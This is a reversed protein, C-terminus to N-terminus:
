GSGHQARRIGVEAEQATTHRGALQQELLRAKAYVAERTITGGVLTRDASAAGAARGHLVRWNNMVLFRGKKMELRRQFRPSHALEVYRHFAAYWQPLVDYPLTLPMRFVENYQVRVLAGTRDTQLLRPQTSVLGSRTLTQAADVRSALLDREADWGYECLLRFGEPDEARLAEAVAFGDALTNAGSGQAYHMCLVLGVAGHPPQSQDTHLNLEKLHDYSISTAGAKKTIKWNPEDRSPDKQLGGLVEDTFAHLAPVGPTPCGDVVVAGIRLLDKLAALQVEPKSMIEEYECTPFAVGDAEWLAMQEARPAPADPFGSYPALWSLDPVGDDVAPAKELSLAVADAYSRLFRASFTSAATTSVDDNWWLKLESGADDLEAGVAQLGAPSFGDPGVPSVTLIREGSVDDVHASDRCADRLWLAHFRYASGDSFGVDVHDGAARTMAAFRVSSAGVAATAPGPQTATMAIRHLAKPPTAGMM